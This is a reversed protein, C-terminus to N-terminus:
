KQGSNCLQLFSDKTLGLSGADVFVCALEMLDGLVRDRQPIESAGVLALAKILSTTVQNHDDILNGLKNCLEQQSM